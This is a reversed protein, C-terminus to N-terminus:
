TEACPSLLTTLNESLPQVGVSSILVSARGSGITIRRLVLRFYTVTSNQRRVLSLFKEVAEDYLGKKSYIDYLYLHANIFDPDLALAKQCAALAEDYHRAFYLVQGLDANLVPSFPELDLAQKM